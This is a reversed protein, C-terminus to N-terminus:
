VKDKTLIFNYNISTTNNNRRKFNLIQDATIFHLNLHTNLKKFLQYVMFHQSRVIFMEIESFLLWIKHVTTKFSSKFNLM